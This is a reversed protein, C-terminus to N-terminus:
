SEAKKILEDYEKDFARDKELTVSGAVKRLGDDPRLRRRLQSNPATGYFTIVDGEVIVRVAKESLRLQRFTMRRTVADREAPSMTAKGHRDKWVTGM